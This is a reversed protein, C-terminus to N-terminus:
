EINLTPLSELFQAATQENPNSEVYAAVLKCTLTWWDIISQAEAGYVEDNLWMSVEGINIYNYQTLIAYLKDDHLKSTPSEYTIEKENIVWSKRGDQQQKFRITM